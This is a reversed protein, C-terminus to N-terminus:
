DYKKFIRKLITEREVELDEFHFRKKLNEWYHRDHVEGRRWVQWM